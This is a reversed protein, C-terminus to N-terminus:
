YGLRATLCCTLTKSKVIGVRLYFALLVLEVELEIPIPNRLGRIGQFVLKVLWGSRVKSVRKEYEENTTGPMSWNARRKYFRIQKIAKRTNKWGSSLILYFSSNGGVAVHGNLAISPTSSVVYASPFKELIGEVVDLYQGMVMNVEDEIALMRARLAELFWPDKGVKKTIGLLHKLGRTYWNDHGRYVSPLWTRLPYSSFADLYYAWGLILARRNQSGLAEPLVVSVAIPERGMVQDIRDPVRWRNENNLDKVVHFFWFIKGRERDIWPISPCLGKTDEGTLFQPRVIVLWYAKREHREENMTQYEPTRPTSSGYWDM